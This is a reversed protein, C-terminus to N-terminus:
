RKKEFPNQTITPDWVYLKVTEGSHLVFDKKYVHMGVSPIPKDAADIDSVFKRMLSSKGTGQAGVILVEILKMPIMKIVVPEEAIEDGVKVDGITAKKKKTKVKKKKGKIPSAGTTDFQFKSHETIDGYHGTATSDM